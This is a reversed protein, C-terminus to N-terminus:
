KGICFQSFIHDYLDGSGTSGSIEGLIQCATNIISSALEVAPAAQGPNGIRILEARARDLVKRQRLNPTGYEFLDPARGNVFFRFILEKLSEIGSGTKASLRVRPLGGFRKEIASVGREASIDDKNIVIIAKSADLEDVLREDLAQIARSADLVVLVMDSCNIQSWAKQIGMREVPDATEHIGATDCIVVPIGNISLHERIVDRTTGPLASVIAAEKEVLINLLSSKGVNPLGVIALHIGDRYVATDKYRQILRDITPLVSTRIKRRLDPVCKETAEADSFEIEFECNAQMATLEQVLNQVVEAIGGSIQQGAMQAAKESSANILDIVAEAQTLDIRGNLFARRTFAGPEALAAGSDIIVGLIRDLVIFGSHAQIEVIDERTFSKPGKMYIALVEDIPHGTEPDVIHGYYVRHSSFPRDKASRPRENCGSKHRVFIRNLIAHAAPGSIRIVGIGGPGLPTSIAAITHNIM